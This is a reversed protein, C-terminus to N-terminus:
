RYAAVVLGNEAIAYFPKDRCHSIWIEGHHGKHYETTGYMTPIKIARHVLLRVSRWFVFAAQTSDKVRISFDTTLNGVAAINAGLAM